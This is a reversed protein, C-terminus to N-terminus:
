KSVENVLKGNELKMKGDVFVFEVSGMVQMGHFPTNKGKSVFQMRDVTWAKNEDVLIIDAVNDKILRKDGLSLIKAPNISTLEILKEMGMEGTQILNTISLALATEFGSIGNAAYNFEVNKENEHHPAHDTAICDITGDKLAAIIALRDKETRLPPNVKANTDFNLIMDDTASFYHPCTEATVRVGRAKAQRILEVSGITSVHAIHVPLELSEALLIERAVMAEEAVRSIGKLGALTANYGENVVGGDLLSLEECHSIVPLSFMSAYQLALKMVNGNEVPRGDDSVAIAGAQKMFGMESLEKGQLGKTISGIPYVKAYDVQKARNLIYQVIYANDCVPNTNPMCAVSTFGGKIAARSGSAIDEKYELGPERLHCHMDVMGPMATLGTADITRCESTSEPMKDGIEVIRGDKILINVIKTKGNEYIKVNQICVMIM